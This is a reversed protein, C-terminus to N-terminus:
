TAPVWAVDLLGGVPMPILGDGRVFEFSTGNWGRLDGGASRQVVRLRNLGPALSLSVEFRGTSDTIAEGSVADNGLAEVRVTAGPQAVGRVMYAAADVLLAAGSVDVGVGAVSGVETVVASSTSDIRIIGLGGAGGARGTSM